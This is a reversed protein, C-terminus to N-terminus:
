NVDTFASDNGNLRRRQYTALVILPVNLRGLANVSHRVDTMMMSSELPMEKKIPMLPAM